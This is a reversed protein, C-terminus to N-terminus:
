GVLHRPINGTNTTSKQPSDYEHWWVTFTTTAKQWSELKLIKLYKYLYPSFTFILLLLLVKIYFKTTTQQHIYFNAIIGCSFALGRVGPIVFVVYVLTHMFRAATFLRFLFKACGLSPGTGFYVFAITLFLLINELDNM